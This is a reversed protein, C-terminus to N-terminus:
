LDSGLYWPPCYLPLPPCKGGGGGGGGGGSSVRCEEEEAKFRDFRFRQVADCNADVDM